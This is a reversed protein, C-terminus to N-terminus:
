GEECIEDYLKQLSSALQKNTIYLFRKKFGETDHIATFLMRSYANKHHSFKGDKYSEWEMHCKRCSFSGNNRTWILEAKHLTKCRAQSITHDFDNAQAKGCCECWMKILWDKRENSLKRKVQQDTYKNGESDYSYNPMPKYHNFYHSIGSREMKLYGAVEFSTANPYKEYFEIVSRYKVEPMPRKRSQTDFYCNLEDRHKQMIQLFDYEREDILEFNM